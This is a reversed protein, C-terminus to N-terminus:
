RLRLQQERSQVNISESPEIYRAIEVWESSGESRATEKVLILSFDYCDHWNQLSPAAATARNQHQGCRFRASAKNLM